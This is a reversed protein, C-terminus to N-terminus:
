PAWSMREELWGPGMTAYQDVLADFLKVAPSANIDTLWIGWSGGRNSLFAVSSGSPSFAAWCDDAPDNTLNFPTGGGVDVVYIDWNGTKHSCFAITSGHVDQPLNDAETTLREPTSGETNAWSVVRWLGCNGGGGPKWTDCGRFVIYDGSWVPYMNDSHVIKGIGGPGKL